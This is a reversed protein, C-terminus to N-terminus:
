TREPFVELGPSFQLSQAPGYAFDFPSLADHGAARNTCHFATNWSVSPPPAGFMEHTFRAYKGFFTAGTISLMIM